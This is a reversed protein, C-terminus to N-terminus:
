SQGAQVKGDGKEWKRPAVTVERGALDQMSVGTNLTQFGLARLNLTLSFLPSRPPSLSPLSGTETM